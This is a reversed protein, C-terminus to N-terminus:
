ADFSERVRCALPQRLAWEGWKRLLGRFQELSCPAFDGLKGGRRVALEVVEMTRCDPVIAVAVYYEPPQRELYLRQGIPLSRSHKFEILLYRGNIEISGDRDTMSMHGPFCDALYEFRLRCKDSYCGHRDCDWRFPGFNPPM